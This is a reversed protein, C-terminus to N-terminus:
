EKAIELTVTSKEGKKIVVKLGSTTPSAYKKPFTNKEETEGDDYRGINVATVVYEGEPAGDFGKYTSLVFVGDKDTFGEAVVVFREKPATVKQMFRVTANASPQGDFLVKGEFPITPKRKEPVGKEQSDPVELNEPLIGELMVNAILPGDKKMTIWSIHDFEGYAPGRLRSGGGTTALQYYNNGNRVFKQYRHVHGCFVTYKRGALAKEMAAWGNAELDKATWLPKHLFAMTWRVNPNEKLVKDFYEVQEASVKSVPDESNIAMFLVNKYIFHYYKRGFRGSWDAVMEKNTLDHNGPVYFFPMQFNKVYGQFESWESEIVDQKVTYGEILDGVSLVFEPQMLNIQYVAKSFVKARHGGTRDTLVAFQFQEADNNVKLHTWPNKEEQSIKLEPNSNAPNAADPRRTNSFVVASIMLTGVLGLLLIQRM